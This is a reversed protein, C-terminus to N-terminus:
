AATQSIGCAGREGPNAEESLNYAPLTIGARDALEQLAEQFTSNNYRMLFTIASGGAGCGFCHFINKSPSVNFSPTKENHFPCLGVYNSGRKKLHVHASVVDVINTNALVEDLVEQPYYM